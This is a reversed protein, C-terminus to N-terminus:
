KAASPMAGGYASLSAIAKQLREIRVPKTVYAKAGQRLGWVKDTETDKSTCLIIPINGLTEDRSFTRTMQFGNAGPMVVDMLILDPLNARAKALGDEGDAAETVLFGMRTLMENLHYREVASDDIILVRKISPNM